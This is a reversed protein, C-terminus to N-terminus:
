KSQLEEILDNETDVLKTEVIGKIQYKNHYGMLVEKVKNYPMKIWIEDGSKTGIVTRESKDDAEVISEIESLLICVNKDKSTVGSVLGELFM